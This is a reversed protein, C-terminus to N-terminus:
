RVSFARGKARSLDLSLIVVSNDNQANSRIWRSPKEFYYIPTDRFIRCNLRPNLRNNNCAGRNFVHKLM